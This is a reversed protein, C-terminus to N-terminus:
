PKRGKNRQLFAEAESLTDGPPDIDGGITSGGGPSLNEGEGDFYQPIEQNFFEPGYRGVFYDNYYQGSNQRFEQKSNSLIQTDRIAFDRNMNQLYVLREMAATLAGQAQEPRQFASAWLESILQLEKETVPTLRTIQLNLLGQYIAQANLEGTEKDGLGMKVLLGQWPGTDLQGSEYKRLIEETQEIAFQGNAMATQTEILRGDADAEKVSVDKIDQLTQAEAATASLGSSAAEDALRAYEPDTSFVPRGGNEGPAILFTQGDETVAMMTGNDYVQSRQVNLASLTNKEEMLDALNEPTMFPALEKYASLGNNVLTNEMARAMNAQRVADAGATGSAGEVKASYEDIRFALKDRARDFNANVDAVQQPSPPGGGPVTLGRLAKERQTELQSMASMMRNYEAKDDQAQQQRNLQGLTAGLAVAEEQYGNRQAWRQRDLVSNPDNADLVPANYDRLNQAFM